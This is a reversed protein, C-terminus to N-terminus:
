LILYIGRGAFSQLFGFYTKHWKNRFSQLLLLLSFLIIYIAGIIKKAVAWKASSPEIKIVNLLSLVSIAILGIATSAIVRCSRAL